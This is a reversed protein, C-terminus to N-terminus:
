AAFPSAAAGQTTRFTGCARRTGQSPQPKGTTTHKPLLAYSTVKNASTGATGTAISHQLGTAGKVGTRSAASDRQICALTCGTPVNVDASAGAHSTFTTRKLERTALALRARTSRDEKRGGVAAAAAAAKDADM